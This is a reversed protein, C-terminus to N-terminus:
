QITYTFISCKYKTPKFGDRFAIGANLEGGDFNNEFRSTNNLKSVASGSYLTLRNM